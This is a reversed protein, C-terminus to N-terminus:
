QNVRNKKEKIYEFMKKRVFYLVLFPIAVSFGKSILLGLNNLNELKLIKMFIFLISSSMIINLFFTIAYVLLGSFSIKIKFVYSSTLFFQLIFGAVNGCVNAITLTLTSVENLSNNSALNVIIFVIITDVVLALCAILFYNIFERNAKIIKM